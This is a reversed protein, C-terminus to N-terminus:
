ILKFLKDLLTEKKKNKERNEIESLMEDFYGSKVEDIIRKKEYKLIEDSEKKEQDFSNLESEIEKIKNIPIIKQEKM